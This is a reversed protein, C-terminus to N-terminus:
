KLLFEEAYDGGALFDFSKNGLADKLITIQGEKLLIDEDLGQMKKKLMEVESNLLMNKENLENVKEFLMNREGSVKPLIDRAFTLEKFSERLENQLQNMNEDKKQMQLEYDKLKHSAHSLNDMANQVECRLIDNGRMAAALEARLQEAEMEESYLKERLLSTLMAEAKVKYRLTEESTLDNLKGSGDGITCSESKSAVSSSKEQLVSSITQLSRTLNEFGSKFGQVKVDAEVVFQGDLVNRKLKTASLQSAGEKIIELLQSCMHASEKLMPLGQNQLCCIRSWIEKDLKFTLAGMEEGSGKLRNLLCMNEHRLSDVEIKQSEIKRRLSLEVGTLRVQEMQFRSVHKDEKELEGSFAQHLGEITKEQESCTRVWRSISNQLEKCEEDKERFNRKFCSLKEEAELYKKELESFKERLDVNEKSAEEVRSTLHRVQQESCAIASRSETERESLSSVKRQLSVNQEALERVRDRLRKEELQYKDLKLSWDSSRRDLEKELASQLESKEKGLRRVQSEFESKVLRLEEKSSEKEAIRSMLLGSVEVALSLKEETLKRTTQIFSPFDFGSDQFFSEQELEESLLLVREEAEKYRQQLNVDVADETQVSNNEEFNNGAFCRENQSALFDDGHYSDVTEYAKELSCSKPCPVDLEPNFCENAKVHYIDEVTIPMHHNSEKFSSNSLSRTQSLREVVDRALRRPSEHGFGNDVRDRSSCYLRSGKSERFSHSISKDKICDPPSGPASYQVRPPRRADCNGKGAVNRELTKKKPRTQQPHQEGDIYLELVNTSANSSSSSGSSDHRSKSSGPRVPGCANRTSLTLARRRLPHDYQEAVSSISSCPSRSHYHPCSSDNQGLKDDLFAASSMSRSRRLFSSTSTSQNDYAKRSKSLSGKPSQSANKGKDGRQNKLESESPVKWYDDASPSTSNDSAKNSSSSKFFFLKKMM